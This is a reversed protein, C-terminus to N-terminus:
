DTTGKKHVCGFCGPDDYRDHITYQCETTMRHPILVRVPQGTRSSIGHLVQADVFPARNHCGNLRNLGDPLVSTGGMGSDHGTRSNQHSQAANM